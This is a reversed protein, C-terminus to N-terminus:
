LPRGKLQFLARNQITVVKLFSKLFSKISYSKSGGRTIQYYKRRPGDASDQWYSEIWKKNVMRKLIPYISGKALSFLPIKNLKNTLDYGYMAQERILLLIALEFVGKKVQVIWQDNNSIHVSRRYHEGTGRSNQLGSDLIILIITPKM